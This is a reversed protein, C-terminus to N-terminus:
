TGDQASVDIPTPRRMLSQIGRPDAPAVYHVPFQLEPSANPHTAWPLTQMNPEWRPRSFTRLPEQIAGLAGIVLVLVLLGHWPTGRKDALPKVTALALVTLAPISARMALDNGPGFSYLPLLCLVILAIRLPQDLPALRALVLALFGFELLCFVVWYYALASVSPFFELQWGHRVSAADMGLYLAIALAVPLFPLCSHPSFLQKLDRRWDLGFLFFPFLGIAALPSWLPIAAALLPTLVALAPQRWHRLILMAGLWAPMAHNPAWFLLTTNSSYQIVQAWWELHGGIPPVQGTAWLHGLLDMGGFGVLVVLCLIRQATTEFLRLAAALMLGWGLVTWLYLAFDAAVPGALQGFAGAPLFYGIPARLLFTSADPGTYTTPWHAISLDHLVADRIVWDANAYFFHGVGAIAIWAFSLASIVMLWRASLGKPRAAGGRLARYIGYVSLLLLATAVPTTFWLCFLLLPLALYACIGRDIWDVGDVRAGFTQTVMAKM